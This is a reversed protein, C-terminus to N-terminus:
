SDKEYILGEYKKLVRDRWVMFDNEIEQLIAANKTRSSSYELMKNKIVRAERDPAPLNELLHVPPPNGNQAIWIYNQMQNHFTIVSDISSKQWTNPIFFTVVSVAIFVVMAWQIIEEAKKKWAFWSEGPSVLYGLLMGSLLGGIHAGNDVVPTVFGILLNILIFPLLSRALRNLSTNRYKLGSAFLAGALGFIAGSAGVSVNSYNMLLSLLSGGMGTVIYIIFFKKAGYVGEALRGLNYLAYMNFFLHWISGHLFMCLLLRQWEGAVILPGFKAGLRLLIPVSFGGSILTTLFFVLNLLILFFVM